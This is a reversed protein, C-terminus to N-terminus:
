DPWITGETRRCHTCRRVGDYEESIEHFRGVGGAACRRRDYDDVAMFVSPALLVLEAEGADQERRNVVARSDPM